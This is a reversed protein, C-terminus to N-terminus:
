SIDRYHAQCIVLFPSRRVKQAIVPIVGQEWMLNFFPMAVVLSSVLLCACSVGGFHYSRGIISCALLWSFRRAAHYYPHDKVRALGEITQSWVWSRYCHAVFEVPVGVVVSAMAVIHGLSGKYVLWAAILLARSIPAADTPRPAPFPSINPHVYTREDGLLIPIPSKSCSREALTFSPVPTQPAWEFTPDMDM